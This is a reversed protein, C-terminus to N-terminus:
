RVKILKNTSIVRGDVILRCFYVGEKLETDLNLSVTGEIQKPLETSFIEKGTVDVVSITAFHEEPLTYKIEIRDTFPNPYSTMHFGNIAAPLGAVGVGLDLNAVAKICFNGTNQYGSPDDYYYFDVWGSGDFYFSDNTTATSPVLTSTEQGCLLVPV